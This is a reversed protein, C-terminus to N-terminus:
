ECDDMIFVRKDLSAHRPMFPLAQYGVTGDAKMVLVELPDDWGHASHEYFQAYAEDSVEDGLKGV